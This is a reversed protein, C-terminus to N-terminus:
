KGDDSVDATTLWLMAMTVTEVIAAPRATPTTCAASASGRGPTVHGPTMPTSTATASVLCAGGVLKPQTATTVLPVRTVAPVKSLFPLATLKSISFALM